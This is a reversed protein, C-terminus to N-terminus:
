CWSIRIAPRKRWRTAPKLTRFWQQCWGGGSAPPLLFWTMGNVTQARAIGKYEWYRMRLDIDVLNPGYMLDKEGVWTIIKAGKWGVVSIDRYLAGDAVNWIFINDSSLCAIRTGERNFALNASPLQRPVPQMALIKGEAVDMIGIQTKTAFALLKRDPSLAPTSDAQIPYKYLSKGTKLDWVVLAPGGITMLRDGPLFSAFRVATTLKYDHYPAIDLVVAGGKDTINWIQIRDAGGKGPETRRMLVKKADDSLSLPVWAGPIETRSLVTSKVLDCIAIRSPEGKANPNMYGIVGHSGSLNAVFAFVQDGAKANLAIPTTSTMKAQPDPKHDIKWGVNAPMSDVLRGSRWDTVLKKDAPVPVFPDDDVKVPPQPTPKEKEKGTVPPKVPPEKEKGKVPPEQKGIDKPNPDPVVPKADPGQAIPNVPARLKWWALGGVAVVGVLLLVGVGAVLGIILGVKSSSKKKAKGGRRPRKEGDDDDEDEQPRRKSAATSRDPKTKVATSREAVENDSAVFSAECEPCKVKKGEAPRSALKVTADCKPCCFSKSAM